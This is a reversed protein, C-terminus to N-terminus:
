ATPLPSSFPSFQSLTSPLRLEFLVFCNYVSPAFCLLFLASMHKNRLFHIISLSSSLIHFGIPLFPLFILFPSSLLNYIPFICYLAAHWYFPVVSYSFFIASQVLIVSFTSSTVDVPAPLVTVFFFIKICISVPFLTTFYKGIVDTFNM